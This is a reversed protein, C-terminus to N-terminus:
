AFSRKPIGSSIPKAEHIRKETSSNEASDGSNEIDSSCSESSDSGGESKIIKIKKIKGAGTSSHNHKHRGSHSHRHEGAHRKHKKHLIELPKVKKVKTEIEVQDKAVMVSDDDDGTKTVKDDKFVLKTVKKGRSGTFNAGTGSTYNIADKNMFESDLENNLSFTEEKIIKKEAVTEMYLDFTSMELNRCFGLVFNNNKENYKMCKGKFLLIFSFDSLMELSFKQADNNHSPYIILRDGIKGKGTHSDFSKNMRPHLIRIFRSSPKETIESLSKPNYDSAPTVGGERIRFDLAQEIRSVPAPCDFQFNSQKEIGLFQKTYRHYFYVAKVTSIFKFM